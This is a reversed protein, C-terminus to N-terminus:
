VSPRFPIRLAVQAGGLQSPRPSIEVRGGHLEAIQVVLALGLGTGQARTTFFPELVRRRLEPAIGPGADSVRLVIETRERILELAVAGGGPQAHIANSLLNRLTQRLKIRDGVFPAAEVSCEIRWQSADTLEGRVQEIAAQALEAPEITELTLKSPSALTLMSALICEANACGAVILAAWRQEESAPALSKHLLAAFGGIATMPNRLEHAIGGAMNGLAALKDLSHLREHLEALQTRDDLIEISGLTDAPRAGNAPLAVTTRRRAIVLHRGDDRVIERESWDGDARVQEGFLAASHTHVQNAKAGLVELAAQNVRVVRGSADRVVVGTPLADLIAALNANVADLEAVKAELADNARALDQEVRQARRELAQYSDVLRAGLVELEVVAQELDARGTLNQNAVM